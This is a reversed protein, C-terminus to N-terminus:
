GMHYNNTINMRELKENFVPTLELQIVSFLVRCNYPLKNLPGLPCPFGNASKCRANFM